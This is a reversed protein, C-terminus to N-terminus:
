CWRARGPPAARRARDTKGGGSTSFMRLNMAPHEEPLALSPILVPFLNSIKKM